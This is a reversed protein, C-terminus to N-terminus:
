YVRASVLSVTNRVEDNYEEEDDGDTDYTLEPHAQTTGLATNVRHLPARSDRRTPVDSSQSSEDEHYGLLIYTM